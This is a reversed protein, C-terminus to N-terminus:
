SVAEGRFHFSLKSCNHCPGIHRHLEATRRYSGQAGRVIVLGLPEEGELGSIQRYYQPVYSKFMMATVKCFHEVRKFGLRVITQVKIPDVAEAM